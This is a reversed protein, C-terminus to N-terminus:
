FQFYIFQEGGHIGFLIIGFIVLYYVAWRLATPRFCLVDGTDEKTSLREILLVSIIGLLGQAITLMAGGSVFLDGKATFISKIIYAAENLNAARFFIWAFIVIAFTFAIQYSKKFVSDDVSPTAAPRKDRFIKAISIYLGHLAGWIIFTWSAGHWLGGLLMTIFINRYTKLAGKRNGGLSIYLYDRLWTSLSIHWKRWFERINRAFYPCRFNVMLDFGMLKALGRAIDSYGSFDCYIQFAFFFTAVLFTVGTHQYVNGYVADVYVALRDAVVVKKFLGWLILRSGEEISDATVVRPKLVQPLLRKAREIPGAVLQPFFAVFLAFDPFKRTPKIEGRYIDLTYSM